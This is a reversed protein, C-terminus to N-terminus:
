RRHATPTAEPVARVSVTRSRAPAASTATSAGSPAANWQNRSVFFSLDNSIAHRRGRERIPVAEMERCLIKGELIKRDNERAEPQRVGLAISLPTCHCVPHEFPQACTDLTAGIGAPRRRPPLIVPGGSQFAGSILSQRRHAQRGSGWGPSRAGSHRSRWRDPGTRGNNGSGVLHRPPPPTPAPSHTPQAFSHPRWLAAYARLCTRGSAARGIQRRRRM